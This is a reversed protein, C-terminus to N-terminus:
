KEDAKAEEQAGKSERKAERKQQNKYSKEYWKLGKFVAKSWDVQSRLYGELDSNKLIDEGEKRQQMKYVVPRPSIEKMIIKLTEVNVELPHEPSYSSKLTTIAQNLFLMGLKSFCLERYEGRLTDLVQLKLQFDVFNNNFVAIIFDVGTPHNIISVLTGKGVAFYTRLHVQLMDICAKDYIKLWELVVGAGIQWYGGTGGEQSKRELRAGFREKKLNEEIKQWTKRKEGRIEDIKRDNQDLKVGLISYDFRQNQKFNQTLIIENQQNDPHLIRNLFSKESGVIKIITDLFQQCVEPYTKVGKYISKVANKILNSKDLDFIQPIEAMLKQLIQVFFPFQYINAASAEVVRQFQTSSCDYFSPVSLLFAGAFYCNMPAGIAVELFYSMEPTLNQKQLEQFQCILDVVLEEDYNRSTYNALVRESTRRTFSAAKVFIEIPNLLKEDLTKLYKYQNIYLQLIQSTEQVQVANSFGIEDIFKILKKAFNLALDGPQVGALYEAVKPSVHKRRHESEPPVGLECSFVAKLTKAAYPSEMILTFSQFLQQVIDKYIQSARHETAYIVLLTQFLNSSNSELLFDVDFLALKQEIPGVDRTEIFYLQHADELLRSVLPHHFAKTTPIEQQVLTTATQLLEAPTSKYNKFIEDGQSFASILADPIVFQTERQM